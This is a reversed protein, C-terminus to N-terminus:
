RRFNPGGPAGCTTTCTNPVRADPHTLRIDQPSPWPVSSLCMGWSKTDREFGNHLPAFLPAWFSFNAGVGWFAGLPWGLRASHNPNFPPMEAHGHHCLFSSAWVAERPSGLLFLLGQVESGQLGQPARDGPPVTPTGPPTGAPGRDGPGLSSSAPRLEQRYLQM